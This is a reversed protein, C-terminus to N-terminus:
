DPLRNKANLEAKLREIELRQRENELQMEREKSSYSAVLDETTLPMSFTQENGFIPKDDIHKLFASKIIFQKGRSGEPMKIDKNDMHTTHIRLTETKGDAALIVIVASKVGEPWGHAIHVKGASHDIIVHIFDGNIAKVKTEALIRTPESRKRYGGMEGPLVFGLLHVDVAAMTGAAYLGYAWIKIKTRCIEVTTRLLSDRLLRDDPSAATTNCKNILDQLRSRRDILDELLEPPITWAPQNKLILNIVNDICSFKGNIGGRWGYGAVGVAFAVTLDDTMLVSLDPIHEFISGLLNISIEILSNM